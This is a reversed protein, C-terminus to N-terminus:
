VFDRSAILSDFADDGGGRGADGGDGHPVWREGTLMLHVEAFRAAVRRVDPRRARDHDAMYRVLGYMEGPYRGGGSAAAATTRGGDGPRTPPDPVGGLVKLHTCEVVRVLGDADGRGRPPDRVFDMEYPSCGHMLGFLVCGLGWVDVRDYSLAEDPGHRAGGDFLEPPRYALTTRSSAAEVARRVDSRTAIAESAPGASGFDMIVPTYGRGARGGKRRLLINEIKFDRHSLGRGHIASLGDVLGGLLGLVEGVALCRRADGPRELLVNRRTLEGRLSDPVLPFLLYCLDPGGASPGSPREFKIGLLGLLNPHDPPLSGHVGAEHRCAEVVERDGCSIRKLAYRRTTGGGDPAGDGDAGAPVASSPGRRGGSEGAPSAEYVYSFGGEAIRRGVVVSTGDDFDVTRTRGLLGSLASLSLGGSSPPAPGGVVAGLLSLVARVCLRVRHLVAHLSTPLTM